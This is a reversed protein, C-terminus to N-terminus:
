SAHGVKDVCDDVRPIPFADTKSVSNVKRYDTCFRTSGDPKPVLLCLSSWDSHSPRIINHELMYRVENEALKCKEPSMRYPHQKFPPADGVEVDHTAM